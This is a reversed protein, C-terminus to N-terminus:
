EASPSPHISIILVYDRAGLFEDGGPPPLYGLLDDCFLTNLELYLVCLPRPSESSSAM